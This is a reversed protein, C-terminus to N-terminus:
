EPGPFVILLFSQSGERMSLQNVLLYMRAHNPDVIGDAIVTEIEEALMVILPELLLSVLRVSLHAKQYKFM